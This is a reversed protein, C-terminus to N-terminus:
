AVKILDFYVTESTDASLSLFDVSPVRNHTFEFWVGLRGYRFIDHTIDTEAECGLCGPRWGGGRPVARAAILGSSIARMGVLQYRGVPLDEDLSINVNTWSGASLTSSGTGRVTIIEGSVPTPPRDALWVLVWQVAAATTNSHVQANLAEYTVLQLPSSRMDIVAQPSNPEADADAGGNIPSIKPLSIDRLSPAVLRAIGNGGSGVGAAVAIVQSLDPVTLDDGSTYVHQDAIAALNSWSGAADISEYFAVTTFPM